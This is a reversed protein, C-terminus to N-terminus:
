ISDAAKQPITATASSEFFRRGIWRLLRWGAVAAFLITLSWALVVPVYFLIAVMTSAYDAIGDLGNRAAIKLQYLPRWNLGFVETDALVRLSVSIAVTEVQKSLTQFEAQQQEIQGRVESLKQAVDLLDEVKFAGKMITLYQAEEARLNRLRAEMDVYQRTVDQADTRESEIRAALQRIQAKAEEFRVAPVRITLDATPAEKTGGIQASELYGGMAEAMLRIQEAGNAPSKVILALSGTRVIKRDATTPAKAGSPLSTKLQARTPGASPLTAQGGDSMELKATNTDISGLEHLRQSDEATMNARYLNPIAIAAAILTVVAAVAV